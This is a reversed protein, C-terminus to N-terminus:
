TPQLSLERWLKVVRDAGSTAFALVPRDRSSFPQWQASVVKDAHAAVATPEVAVTSGGLISVSVRCDYSGALLWHSYEEPGFSLSKVEATHEAMTHIVAASDSNLVSIDGSKLGVALRRGKASAAISTVAAKFPGYLRVASTKTRIDWLRVRKDASGSYLLNPSGPVTALSSIHDTHGRLQALSMGTFCDLVHVNFEGGGGLAVAEAGGPGTCFQIARITGCRPRVETCPGGRCTSTDFQQLKLCKDNSGTAILNGASNWAVCYISGGHHSEGRWAVSLATSTRPYVNDGQFPIQDNAPVPCVRLVSSNSGVALHRGSPSFGIARIPQQDVLEAVSVFKPVSRMHHPPQEPSSRPSAQRGMHDPSRTPSPDQREPSPSVTSRGGDAIEPDALIVAPHQQQHQHQMGHSRAVDATPMTQADADPRLRHEMRAHEPPPATHRAYAYNLVSQEKLAGMTQEEEAQLTQRREAEADYGPSPPQPPPSPWREEPLPLSQRPTPDVPNSPPGQPPSTSRGGGSHSTTTPLPDTAYTSARQELRSTTNEPANPVPEVVGNGEQVQNAAAGDDGHVASGNLPTCLIDFLTTAVASRSAHVNWESWANDDDATAPCQALAELQELSKVDPACERLADLCSGIAAAVDCEDDVQLVGGAWRPTDLALELLQQRHM